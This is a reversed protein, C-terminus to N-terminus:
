RRCGQLTSEMLHLCGPVSFCVHLICVLIGCSPLNRLFDLNCPSHGNSNVPYPINEGCLQGFLDLLAGSVSAELEIAGDRTFVQMCM